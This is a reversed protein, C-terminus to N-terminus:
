SIIAESTDSHLRCRSTLAREGSFGQVKASVYGYPHASSRLTFLHFPELLPMTLDHKQANARIPRNREFLIALLCSIRKRHWINPSCEVCSLFRQYGRLGPNLCIGDCKNGMCLVEVVIAVQWNKEKCPDHVEHCRRMYGWPVRSDHSQYFLQPVPELLPM